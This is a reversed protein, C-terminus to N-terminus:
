DADAQNLEEKTVSGDVPLNSCVKGYSGTGVFQNWEGLTFNRNAITCALAQWTQKDIDWQTIHSTSFETLIVVLRQGNPSFTAGRIPMSQGFADKDEQFAHAVPEHRTVDWLTVTFVGGSVLMTGDPSFAFGINFFTQRGTDQD